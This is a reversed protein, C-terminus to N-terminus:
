TQRPPRIGGSAVDGFADHASAEADHEKFGTEGPAGPTRAKDYAERGREVM